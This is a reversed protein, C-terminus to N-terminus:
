VAGYLLQWKEFNGDMPSFARGMSYKENHRGQNFTKGKQLHKQILLYLAIFQWLPLILTAINKWIPLIGEYM